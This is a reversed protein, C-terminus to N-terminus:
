VPPICHRGDLDDIGELRVLLDIMEGTDSLDGALVTEGPVQSPHVPYALIWDNHKTYTHTHTHTALGIM